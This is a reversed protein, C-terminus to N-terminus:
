RAVETKTLSAPEPAATAVATRSFRFNDLGIFYVNAKFSSWDTLAYGFNLINPLVYFLCLLILSPAVLVLLPWDRFRKAWRARAGVVPRDPVTRDSTGTTSPGPSAVEQDLPSGPRETAERHTM